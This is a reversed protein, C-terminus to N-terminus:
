FLRRGWMQSDRIRYLNRWLCRQLELEAWRFLFPAIAM